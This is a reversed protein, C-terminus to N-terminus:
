IGRPIEFRKHLEQRVKEGSEKEQGDGAAGLLGGRRGGVV